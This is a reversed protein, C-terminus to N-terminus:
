APEVGPTNDLIETWGPHATAFYGGIFQVSGNGEPHWVVLEPASLSRWRRPAPDSKSSQDPKAPYIFSNPGTRIPADSM